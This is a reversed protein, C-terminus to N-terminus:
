KDAALGVRLWETPPSGESHVVLRDGAVLELTAPLYYERELRFSEPNVQKHLDDGAYTHWRRRRVARWKLDGVKWGYTAMGPPLRTLRGHWAGDVLAVLLECGAFRDEVRRWVGAPSDDRRRLYHGLSQLKTPLM